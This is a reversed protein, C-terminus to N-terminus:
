GFDVYSLYRGDPSPSGQTDVEPGTWVLRMSPTPQTSARAIVALRDRAEDAAPRQDGYDRVLRDYAKQAGDKGLREYCRGIQLLAKAALPRDGAFDRVVQEYLQIAAELQGEAREKALAKQFLDNGSQAVLDAALLVLAAALLIWTLRRM